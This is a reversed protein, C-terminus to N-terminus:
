DMMPTRRLALDIRRQPVDFFVTRESPTYGDAAARVQGFRSDSLVQMAYRGDSTAVTETVDGTDSTFRVMAGGIPSPTEGSELLNTIRGSLEYTSAVTVPACSGLFLGSVLM